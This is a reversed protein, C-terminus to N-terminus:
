GAVSRKRGLRMAAVLIVVAQVIVTLAAPVGSQLQMYAAGSSLASFFLASLVLGAGSNGALCAVAIGDFGYTGAVGPIYHNYVGMVQCAGALGAVAGGLVLVAVQTQQVPMGATRAAAQGLGVARVRFGFRTRSMAFVYLVAGILAILIAATLSSGPVWPALRLGSAIDPTQVAMTSRDPFKESALYQAVDAAAFNLMITVLVEHVGRYARLVAPVAAWLAGAGTGVALLLAVGLAHPLSSVCIGVIAVTMAGAIMQGQVGINFLGARLGIAVAIGAFLTPTLTGITQALLYKSFAFAWPGVRVTFDSAPVAGPSGIGTAGTFLAQLAPLPHYGAFAIAVVAFILGALAAALPPIWRELIAKM